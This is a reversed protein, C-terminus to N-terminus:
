EASTLVLKQINELENKKVIYNVPGPKGTRSNKIPDSPKRNKLTAKDVWGWVRVTRKIDYSCCIFIDSKELKDKDKKSGCPVKLWPNFQAAPHTAVKVDAKMGMIILDYGEDGHDSYITEDLPINLYKCIAVEGALGYFHSQESSDTLKGHRGSGFKSKKADRAKALSEVKLIDTSSLIIETFKHM